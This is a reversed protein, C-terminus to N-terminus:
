CPKEGEEEVTLLIPIEVEIKYDWDVRIPHTAFPADYLIRKRRDPEDEYITM